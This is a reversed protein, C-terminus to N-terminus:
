RSIIVKENGQTTKLYYMGSPLENVAITQILAHITFRKVVAGVTNVLVGETHLLSPIISNLVIENQVPNEQLAFGTKSNDIILIVPSYSFTGDKDFMKLRFYLNGTSPNTINRTYNINGYGIARVEAIKSFERTNTSQEIAFSKTNMENNTQWYLNITGNEARKGKFSILKLPLTQSTIQTVATNTIAPTNYDFYIAARNSVANGAVLTSVPKVRFRIFGHSAFENVSYYPLMINRMEFTVKNNRVSVICPHSTNVVEFTNAQLQSSLTDAIVVHFATDNGTNQFRIVYDIYTGNNIQEPTLEPTADKDNPDFSATILTHSTDVSAISSNSIAVDTVITDGNLASTKVTFNANFSDFSGIFLTDLHLILINGTNAVAANSASDFVLLSSDYHLVVDTASLNTSGSNQYSVVCNYTFGARARFQLPTITISLSDHITVPQLAIDQTVTTDNTSFTFITSSPVANFFVPATPTITFTGRATPALLYFGSDTTFTFSGNSLAVKGHRKWLETTDQIGNNNMDYFMTGSIVPFAVCGHVNNTPSCLPLNIVSGNNAHVVLGAASNPICKIYNDNLYLASLKPPLVPLCTIKTANIWMDQLSDSLAPLSSLNQCNTCSLFRLTKPFPPLITLNYISNCNLSLLSDSLLPLSTLPNGGCALYQLSQPLAPLMQLLNSGVNINQLSQPLTGLTTLKNLAAEIHNVKQNFPPLSSLLNDSINLTELNQPINPIATLKNSWAQFSLLSDPLIPVSTLKNIGVNLWLLGTPLLPISTLSDSSLDINRLTAPFAPIIKVSGNKWWLSYLSKFYQVGELNVAAKYDGNNIMSLANLIASCTTDMQGWGNFCSPYKTILYRKFSTDPINVYQAEIITSTCLTLLILLLQKKM